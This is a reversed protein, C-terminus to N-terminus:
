FHIPKDYAAMCAEKVAESLTPHAHCTRALDEASAGYEMGIAAEAILDGTNPGLMHVGLLKDTANDALVKIMGDADNNTRARSNAMFPFKGVRYAVGDQKLEEENKGIWSFEPHTYIVSPIADYNVHGHKGSLIEAIAIGEEEAKHALMAGRVVDGVAYINPINTQFSGDIDVMRGSMKIGMEELGLGETTPRRGIALLVTEVSIKEETGKKVDKVVVDVGSATPTASQVATSLRFDIGQKKLVKQFTKAMELDTGPCIRDLFEVVQVKSGLRCWVSGLELGIVGAGIVLMSEPIKELSLAGTSSVIQKEDVDVNALPVVESGTAIVINKANVTTSGGDPTSVTVENSKTIKGWGKIYEVKNKKFLGEIGGTLGSVAKEKAKLMQPLNVKIASPEIDIGRDKFDHVAQHYLHSNHLLAKSPICGVNLCTGGLKGRGEICTTSLGLQACKIAAVYGAPGGGIVVVDKEAAGVFRRKQQSQRLVRQVLRSTSRM